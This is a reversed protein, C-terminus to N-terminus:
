HDDTGGQQPQDSKFPNDPHTVLREYAERYIQSVRQGSVRLEKGIDARRGRGFHITLFVYLSPEDLVGRAFDRLKLSRELEIYEEEPGVVDGALMHLLTTDSDRDQTQRPTDTSVLRLSERDDTGRLGAGAARLATVAKNRAIRVGLAEWSVQVEGPQYRLLAEAAEALVDDASAGTGRLIRETTPRQGSRLKESFLIKHIKAYMVDLIRNLRQRDAQLPHTPDFAPSASTMGSNDCVADPTFARVAAKAAPRFQSMLSLCM